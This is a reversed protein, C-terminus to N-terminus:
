GQPERVFYTNPFRSGTRTGFRFLRSIVPHTIDCASHKRTGCCFLRATVRQMMECTDRARMRVTKM